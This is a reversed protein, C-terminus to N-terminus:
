AGAEIILPEVREHAVELGSPSLAAAVAHPAPDRRSRGALERRRAKLRKVAKPVARVNVRGQLAFFFAFRPLTVSSAPRVSSKKGSVRLRVREEVFGTVGAMVREAARRRRVLIRVDDGYRVFRHGHAELGSDLDELM